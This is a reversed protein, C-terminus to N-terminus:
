AEKARDERYLVELALRMDAPLATTFTMRRGTEPHTFSLVSAHLAHRRMIKLLGEITERSRARGTRIRQRRGGYVSDGLLPNDIHALHVRIQHTRGTRTIARIYDFHYYTDVVIVETAAPRGGAVVAMRQRHVPHRAIPEEVTVSRARVNGFVIAHYTKDFRREKIDGALAHYAADTKALVMVGSTDKDLRHVVGPRDAGGLAALETGRGLLANVLTGDRNGHAPHVVLGAPKNVVILADDEYVVPVHIPALSPAPRTAVPVGGAGHAAAADIAVEDGVSLTFSDPRARGNVEVGGAANLAQIRTRSLAPVAAACFRDLRQGADAEGVVVTLRGASM